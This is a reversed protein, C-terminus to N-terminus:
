LPLVSGSEGLVVDLLEALLRHALPHVADRGSVDLVLDRVGQHAIAALTAMLGKMTILSNSLPRLCWERM